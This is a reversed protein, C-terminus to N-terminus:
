VLLVSGALLILLGGSIRSMWKVGGEKWVAVAKRGLVAYGVMVVVDIAVVILILTAYQPLAAHTTNIFQPLVAAHFLYYKPNSMALLFSKLFIAYNAPTVKLTASEIAEGSSKLMQVGMFALCAAGLWKLGVFLVESTSLVMGLGLGVLSILVVDALGAGLIGFCTRRMGFRSANDLALLVTPGPTIIAAFMLLAFAFLSAAAM